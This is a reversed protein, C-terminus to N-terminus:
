KSSVKQKDPSCCEITEPVFMVGNIAVGFFKSSTMFDNKKPNKPLRLIHKQALITHPNGKRPFNETYYDPIGNSKITITNKHELFSVRNM